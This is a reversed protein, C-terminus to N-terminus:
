IWSFKRKFFLSVSRLFSFKSPQNKTTKFPTNIFEWHSQLLWLGVPTLFIVEQILDNRSFNTPKSPNSIFISKENPDGKEETLKIVLSKQLLEISYSLVGLTEEDLKSFDLMAKTDGSKQDVGFTLIQIGSNKFHELDSLSTQQMATVLSRLGDEQEKTLNKFDIM